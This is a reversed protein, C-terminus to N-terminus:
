VMPLVGTMIVMADGKKKPQPENLSQLQKQVDNEEAEKIGSAQASESVTYEVEDKLFVIM